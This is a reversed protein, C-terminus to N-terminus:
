QFFNAWLVGVIVFTLMSTEVVNNEGANSQTQSANVVSPIPSTTAPALGTITPAPLSTITIQGSQGGTSVQTIPPFDGAGVTSQTDTNRSQSQSIPPSPRASVPPFTLSPLPSGAVSCEKELNDILQQPLSWDTAHASQGICLFCNFFDKEFQSSCCQSISSCGNEAVSLTSNCPSECQSPVTIPAQRSALLSGSKRAEISGVVLPHIDPFHSSGGPSLSALLLVIALAKM